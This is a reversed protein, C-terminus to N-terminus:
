DVDLWLLGRAGHNTSSMVSLPVMACVLLPSALKAEARVSRAGDGSRREVCAIALRSRTSFAVSRVLILSQGLVIM